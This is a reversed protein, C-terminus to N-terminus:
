RKIVTGKHQLNRIKGGLDSSLLTLSSITKDGFGHSKKTLAPKGDIMVSFTNDDHIAVHVKVWTEDPTWTGIAGEDTLGFTGPDRAAHFMIEGNMRLKTGVHYTSDKTFADVELWKDPVVQAEYSFEFGSSRYEKGLGILLNNGWFVGHCFSGHPEQAEFSLVEGASSVDIKGQGCVQAINGAGVDTRVWGPVASEVPPTAKRGAGAAYGVSVVPLLSFALNRLVIKSIM